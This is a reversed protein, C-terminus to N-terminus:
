HLARHLGAKVAHREKITRLVGVRLATLIGLLVGQVGLLVWMEIKCVASLYLQM